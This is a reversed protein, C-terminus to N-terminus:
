DAFTKFIEEAIDDSKNETAFHGTDLFVLRAKPLDRLYAEAGPVIFLPDGRGWVILTKPQHQRLWAQWAPYAAINTRYDHLLDLNIRDVGPRGMHYSDLTWSDPSISEPNPVGTVYQWQIGEPSLVHRMNGETEANRNAWYPVADAKLGESLGEEYANANQIVFGTVREPHRIALRFGVPGGYDQM